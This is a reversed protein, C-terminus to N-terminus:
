IYFTFEQRQIITSILHQVVSWIKRCFRIMSDSPRLTITEIRARWQGLDWWPRAETRQNTPPYKSLFYGWFKPQLIVRKRQWIAGPSFFFIPFFPIIVPQSWVPSWSLSIYQRQELWPIRKKKKGEFSLNQKVDNLETQHLLWVDFAHFYIIEEM